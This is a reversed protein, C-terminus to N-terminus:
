VFLFIFCKVLYLYFIFKPKWINKYRYYWDIIDILLLSETRYLTSTHIQLASVPQSATVRLAFSKQSASSRNVKVSCSAFRFPKQTNSSNLAFSNFNELLHQCLLTMITWDKCSWKCCNSQLNGHSNLHPRRSM